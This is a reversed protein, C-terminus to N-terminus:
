LSKGGRSKIRSKSPKRPPLNPRVYAVGQTSCASFYICVSKKKKKVRPFVRMFCVMRVVNTHLNLPMRRNVGARSWRSRWLLPRDWRGGLSPRRGSIRGREREGARLGCLQQQRDTQTQGNRICWLFRVAGWAAKREAPIFVRSACPAARTPVGRHKLVNSRAAVDRNSKRQM